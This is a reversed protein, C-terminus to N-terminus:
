GDMKAPRIFTLYRASGSLGVPWGDSPPDGWWEVDDPDRYPRVEPADHLAHFFSSAQDRSTRPTTQSAPDVYVSGFRVGLKLHSLRYRVFLAHDHALWAEVIAPDSDRYMQSLWVFNQAVNEVFEVSPRVYDLIPPEDILEAM